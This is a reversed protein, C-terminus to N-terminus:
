FTRSRPAPPNRRFYSKVGNMISNAMKNQYSRSRLKSEEQPNSIFATEVLVSPIDPAKLVAFGAQGVNHRHLKNIKGIESLMSRGLVLSDRIQASTSMHLLAHQVSSDRLQKINLGGILDADNEKKALWRARSSSAGRRSLAYVSSGRAQPHTFADAHISIFLDAKVHRAKNVRTHLPVFYDGNRTVYARMPNGNISGANVKKALLRAISLVVNKEKTGRPGIAGPDEGGHGADIAVIILRRTRKKNSKLRTNPKPKTVVVASPTVASPFKQALFNDLLNHDPHKTSFDYNNAIWNGLTDNPESSDITPAGTDKNHEAILQALPDPANEPYLDFVLRHQYDAIPKLTFIQPKIPHKLEIVLRVSNNNLNNFRINAVNPDTAQLKKTLGRLTDNLAIGQIEVLLRNPSTLIKQKYALKTDSELTIRTYDDAPWMRVAVISAARVICPLVATTLVGTTRLFTRRDM